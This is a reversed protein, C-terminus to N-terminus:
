PLHFLVAPRNRRKFDFLSPQQLNLNSPQKAGAQLLLKPASEASATKDNVVITLKGSRIEQYLEPVRRIPYSLLETASMERDRDRNALQREVGDLVLAYTLLGHQLKDLELAINDAQTASLIKMDKDYALQGLGRSGMPGPKFGAGQVATSSFCADIVLITNVATIDRMWLALEDSSILKPLSAPTIGEAPIGNDYPVLYFTGGRDTYGHGSYTVILTDEPGVAVVKEGNPIQRLVEAPVESRRGALLSFLGKIVAKRAASETVNGKADHDSRLSVPIVESYSATDGRLRAGLIEDTRRADNAAFRLNFNPNESANVGISILFARGKSVTGAVAAPVTYKVPATTASKVRDSNFAYATFGVEKRGDRPVSVNRFTYQLKGPTISKIADSRLTFLDNAERWARGEATDAKPGAARDAAALSPAVTLYTSMAEVPTSQGVLQGDRFLRLDFAGSAIPEGRFSSSRPVIESISEVEVTVDVAAPNSAVARIEKLTIRPQVRNIESIAPLAPFEEACNGAQNCQLTRRLLGPEYYQRAFIELPLAKLPELPSIWVLGRISELNNTDFRGDPTVAVWDGEAFSFIRCVEAGTKLDHFSVSGDESAITLYLGDPSLRADVVDHLDRMERVLQGTGSKVVSIWYKTLETGPEDAGGMMVLRSGDASFAMRGSARPFRQILRGFTPDVILTSATRPRSDTIAAFAADPSLAVPYGTTGRLTNVERATATEIFAAPSHNGGRVIYRGDASMGADNRQTRWQAAGCANYGKIRTGLKAAAADILWSDGGCAQLLMGRGDATLSLTTVVDSFDEDLFLRPLAPADTDWILVRGAFYPASAVVRGDASIAAVPTATRGTFEDEEQEERSAEADPPVLFRSVEKGETLNWLYLNAHIDQLLVADHGADTNALNSLINSRRNLNLKQGTALETLFLDNSFEGGGVSGGGNNFDIKLKGDPSLLEVDDYAGPHAVACKQAPELLGADNFRFCAGLQKARFGTIRQVVSGDKLDRVIVPGGEGPAGLAAAIRLKSVSLALGGIEGKERYTFLQQGQTNWLVVVGTGDGTLVFRSDPSFAITSLADSHGTQVSLRPQQAHLALSLFSALFAITLSYFALRTAAGFWRDFSIGPRSVVDSVGM